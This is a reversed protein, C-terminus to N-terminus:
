TFYTGMLFLGCEELLKKYELYVWEGSSRKTIHMGTMYRTARSYFSKLEKSLCNHCKNFKYICRGDRHIRRFINVLKSTLFTNNFSKKKLLASNVFDFTEEKLNRSKYNEFFQASSSYFHDSCIEFFSVFVLIEKINKSM